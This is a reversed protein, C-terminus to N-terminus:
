QIMNPIQNYIEQTFSILVDLFWPILMIIVFGVVAIKPIFSLTMEQIQTVAQFIGVTLGVLLGAGLIPALLYAATMLTEKSLFLVYDINM